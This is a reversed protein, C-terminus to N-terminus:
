PNVVGVVRTNAQQALARRAQQVELPGFLVFLFLVFCLIWM